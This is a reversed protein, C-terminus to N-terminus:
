QGRAKLKKFYFFSTTIAFSIIALGHVGVNIFEYNKTWLGNIAELTLIRRDEIFPIINLVLLCLVAYSSIRINFPLTHKNVLLGFISFVVLGIILYFVFLWIAFSFIEITMVRFLMQFFVLLIISVISYILNFKVAEKM